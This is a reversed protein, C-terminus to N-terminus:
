NGSKNKKQKFILQFLKSFFTKIKFIFSPNNMKDLREYAIELEDHNFTKRYVNEEIEVELKDKEKLNKFFKVEISEWGLLKASELRRHGALLENQPTLSIPNLQGHKDLSKALSTLDGLDKRIRKGIIINDIKVKM